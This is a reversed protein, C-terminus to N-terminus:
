LVRRKRKTRVARIREFRELYYRAKQQEFLEAFIDSSEICDLVQELSINSIDDLSTAKMIRLDLFYEERRQKQAEEPMKSLIKDLDLYPNKKYDGTERLANEFREQELIM